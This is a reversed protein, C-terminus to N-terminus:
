TAGHTNYRTRQLTAYEDIYEDHAHTAAANVTERPLPDDTVIALPSLVWEPDNATTGNWYGDIAVDADTIRPEAEHLADLFPNSDPTPQQSFGRPLEPEPILLDAATLRTETTTNTTDGSATTTPVTALPAAGISHLFARRTDYRTM